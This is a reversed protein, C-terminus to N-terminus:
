ISAQNMGIYLLKLKRLFMLDHLSSLQKDFNPYFNGSGDETYRCIDRGEGLFVDMEVTLVTVFEVEM